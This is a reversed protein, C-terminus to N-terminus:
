FNQAKILEEVCFREDRLNTLTAGYRERNAVLHELRRELRAIVQLNQEPNNKDFGMQSLILENLSHTQRYEFNPIQTYDLVRLRNFPNKDTIMECIMKENATEPDYILSILNGPLGDMKGTLEHLYERMEELTSLAEETYKKEKKSIISSENCELRDCWYDINKGLNKQVKETIYKELLDTREYVGIIKLNDPSIVPKGKNSFYLDEYNKVLNGKGALVDNIRGFKLEHQISIM